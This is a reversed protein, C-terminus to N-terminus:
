GILAFEAKNRSCPIGNATKPRHSRHLELPSIRNHGTAPLSIIDRQCESTSKKPCATCSMIALLIQQVQPLFNDAAANLPETRDASPSARFQQAHVLARLRSRSRERKFRGRVRAGEDAKAVASRGPSM